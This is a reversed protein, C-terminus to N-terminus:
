AHLVERAAAVEAEHPDHGLQRLQLTREAWRQRLELNGRLQADLQALVAADDSRKGRQHEHLCEDHAFGELAAPLAKACVSCLRPIDLEADVQSAVRALEEDGELDALRLRGVALDANRTVTGSVTIVRSTLNSPSGAENDLVATVARAARQPVDPPAQEGGDTGSSM